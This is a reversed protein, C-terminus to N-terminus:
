VCEAERGRQRERERGRGRGRGACGWMRAFSVAPARRPAVAQARHAPRVRRQPAEVKRARERPAPDGEAGGGGTCIPRQDSELGTRFPRVDRGM